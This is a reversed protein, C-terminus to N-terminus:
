TIRLVVPWGPVSVGPAPVAIRGHASSTQPPQPGAAAAMEDLAANM